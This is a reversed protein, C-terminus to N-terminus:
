RSVPLTMIPTLAANQGAQLAFLSMLMIFCSKSELDSDDIYFWTDRYHVSVFASEPRGESHQVQMLDGLMLRWDFVTGDATLAVTVHGADEHAIPVTVGQSLYFMCAALSRTRIVLQDATSAADPHSAIYKLSDPDLGLGRLMQQLEPDEKVEPRFSLELEEGVLRVTFDDTKQHEFLLRAYSKFQKYVPEREPTPGSAGPANRVENMSQVCVRLIRDISWGSHFLLLLHDLGIPTMLATVFDRGQMPSYTVTPREEYVSTIGIGFNDAGPVLAAEAAARSGFTFSTSISSSQLFFPADRYRLRVLNLLMQEKDTEQVAQNYAVRGM